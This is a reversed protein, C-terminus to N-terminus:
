DGAGAAADKHPPGPTRGVGEKPPVVRAVSPADGALREFRQAEAPLVVKLWMTVPRGPQAWRVSSVQLEALPMAASAPAAHADRITSM